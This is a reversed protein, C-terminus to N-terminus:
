QACRALIPLFLMRRFDGDAPSPWRVLPCGCQAFLRDQQRGLLALQHALEAALADDVAVVVVEGTEPDVLRVYGRRPAQVDEAIGPLWGTVLAGRRRLAALPLELAKPTAFDSIWHVRGGAGRQLLLTIAAEPTADAVPLTDLHQLLAALDGAGAFSTIARAGAGPAVVTLGDLHRLALGGVVAALRLAALRRPPSGVLLSASLDLLLVATRREEEELQKVFLEGTRASAAWDIRRLDDGRVYPRHGVFTGSQSLAARRARQQEIRAGPLRAGAALLEHLLTLFGPPFRAPVEPLAPVRRKM